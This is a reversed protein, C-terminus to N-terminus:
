AVIPALFYTYWDWVGVDTQLPITKTYITGMGSVTCSITVQDGIMNLLALSDIVLNPTIVVTMTDTATTQTGFKDDFMKHRNTAGLDLWKPTDGTLNQDPQANTHNVLCEYIRHTSTLICKDGAVYATANSWATFDTEAVTSSTLMSASWTIPNIIKM